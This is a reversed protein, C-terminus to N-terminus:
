TVYIWASLPHTSESPRVGIFLGGGGDACLGRNKRKWRLGTGYRGGEVHGRLEHVIDPQRDRGIGAISTRDGGIRAISTLRCVHSEPSHGKEDVYFRCYSLIRTKRSNRTPNSCIKGCKGCVLLVSLNVTNEEPICQELLVFCVKRFHQREVSIVVTNAYGPFGQGDCGLVPLLEGLAIVIAIRRSGTRSQWNVFIGRWPASRHLANVDAPVRSICAFTYGLVLTVTCTLVM